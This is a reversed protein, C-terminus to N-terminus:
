VAEMRSKIKNKVVKEKELKLSAKHYTRHLRLLCYVQLFHVAVSIQGVYQCFLKNKLSKHLLIIFIKKM